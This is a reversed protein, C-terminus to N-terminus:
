REPLPWTPDPEATLQLEKVEPEGAKKIGDPKRKREVKLTLDKYDSIQLHYFVWPWQCQDPELKIWKDAESVGPKQGPIKQRIQKIVDDPELHDGTTSQPAGKEVRTLVMYALGLEPIAVPSTSNLPVERADRWKAATDWEVAP